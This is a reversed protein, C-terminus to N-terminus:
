PSQRNLWEFSVRILRDDNEAPNGRGDSNSTTFYLYNDPGAIVERIRGYQNTFHERLELNEATNRGVQNTTNLRVEYLTSGRLGGFYFSGDLFTLSAPAWTVDPGSHLNPTRMGQRQQDGEINPWGYNAGPEIHNLEDLGSRIGSRGHETSWLQGQDDWALGQANRHGYSYVENNFPNGPAPQGRDTIRLIKGALSNRDQALSPSQADGTTVYLYGDPGFAIRGGNHNPAGPIENLIVLEDSLTGAQTLNYRVIRNSTRQEDGAYTHYLYLWRNTEFDPHLALGLLGGEGIHKVQNIVAVPEAQLQGDANVLRLRGPRETFLIGGDPLFAIAWPIELNEALVSPQNTPANLQDAEQDSTAQGSERGSQSTPSTFTRFFQNQLAPLQNGLGFTITVALIIASLILLLVIQNRTM